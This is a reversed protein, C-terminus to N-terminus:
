ELRSQRRTWNALKTKNATVVMWATVAPVSAPDAANVRATIAVHPTTEASVPRRSARVRRRRRESRTLGFLAVVANSAAMRYRAPRRRAPEPLNPARSHLEFDM